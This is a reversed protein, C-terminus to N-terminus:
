CSDCGVFILTSGIDICKGIGIDIRQIPLLRILTDTTNTDTNVNTNLGTNTYMIVLIKLGTDTDTNALSM